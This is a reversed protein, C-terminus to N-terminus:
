DKSLLTKSLRDALEEIDEKRALQDLWEKPIGEKGYYVGALGGAVAGTTDTDKGLNVADLCCQKYTKSRLFCWLAAELTHIVYGDSKIETEHYEDIKGDLIRAFHPFEKKTEEDKGYLDVFKMRAVRYAEQPSYGGLLDMVMLVYFGCAMQSRIHGHTLSSAQHVLELVQEDDMGYAYYALPLIRMLSGNGNSGEDKRSASLLDFDPNLRNEELIELAHSTSIGYDFVENHATWRADFLWDVFQEAQDALDFGYCLSDALCFALSSDDSWTGPPQNHSGYGRMGTVPNQAIEARTLFEVPVGLADAVSLGLLGSQVDYQKQKKM